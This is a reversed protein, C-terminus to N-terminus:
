EDMPAVLMGHRGASRDVHTWCQALWDFLADGGSNLLGADVLAVVLSHCFSDMVTTPSARSGPVASFVELQVGLDDGAALYGGADKGGQFARVIHEEFPVTDVDRTHRFVLLQLPPRSLITM